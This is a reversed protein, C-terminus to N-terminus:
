KKPAASWKKHMKNENEESQKVKRKSNDDDSDDSQQAIFAINFNNYICVVCTSAVDTAATYTQMYTYTYM